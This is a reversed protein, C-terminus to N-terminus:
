VFRDPLLSSVSRKRLRGREKVIVSANKGYDSILERCMGCPSVVEIEEMKADPEPCRVAVITSVTDDSRTRMNGIAVAEACVAIRGVNAELHVGTYVKGSRTRLASGIHHMETDYRKRIAKKAEVVLQLDEDTLEEM